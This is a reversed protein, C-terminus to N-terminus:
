PTASVQFGANRIREAIMDLEDSHIPELTPHPTQRSFTYVMVEKPQITKFASILAGVEVPTSNDIVVDKYVGKLFLTQITLNGFGKMNEIIDDLKINGKPQNIVQFTKEIASDLKQVNQDVQELAEFIHSKHLMTANSLVAIRSQPVLQDRLRVTDKVIEPFEPHITPEGNGAFTIYDPYHDHSVMRALKDTLAENVRLRSPLKNDEIDHTSWGCECYLCDFNCIKCSTPLLNIGLSQGFRRSQVPGFIIDGFLFTSTDSLINEM